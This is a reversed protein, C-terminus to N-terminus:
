ATGIEVARGKADGECVVLVCQVHVAASCWAYSMCLEYGTAGHVPVALLALFRKYLSYICDDVCAMDIITM